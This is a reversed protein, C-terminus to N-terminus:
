KEKLGDNEPLSSCLSGYMPSGVNRLSCFSWGHSGPWPFRYFLCSNYSYSQYERPIVMVPEQLLTTTSSAIQKKQFIPLILAATGKICVVHEM